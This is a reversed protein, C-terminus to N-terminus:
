LGYQQKLKLYKAYQKIAKQPEMTYLNHCDPCCIEINNPDGAYTPYQKKGLIHSYCTTIERYTDKHLLKGCEFCPVYGFANIRQDFLYTFWLHMFVADLQKKSEVGLPSWKYGKIYNM